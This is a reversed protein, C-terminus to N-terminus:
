QHLMEELNTVLLANVVTKIGDMNPAGHQFTKCIKLPEVHATQVNEVQAIVEV